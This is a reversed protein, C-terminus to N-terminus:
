KPVKVRRIVPLDGSCSLSSVVIHHRDVVDGNRDIAEVLEEPTM